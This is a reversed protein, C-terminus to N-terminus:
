TTKKLQLFKAKDHSTATAAQLFICCTCASSSSYSQEPMSTFSYSNGTPLDIFIAIPRRARSYIEFVSEAMKKKLDQWLFLSSLM